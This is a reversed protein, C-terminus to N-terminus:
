AMAARDSNSTRAIQHIKIEEFLEEEVLKFIIQVSSSHNEAVARTQNRM